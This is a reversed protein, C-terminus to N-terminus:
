RSWIKHTISAMPLAVTDSVNKSFPFVTKGALLEISYEVIWHMAQANLTETPQWSGSNDIVVADSGSNDSGASIVLAKQPNQASVVIRGFITKTAASTNTFSGDNNDTIGSPMDGISVSVMSLRQYTSVSGYVTSQYSGTWAGSTIGVVGGGGGFAYGGIWPVNNFFGDKNRSPNIFNM